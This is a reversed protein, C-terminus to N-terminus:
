VRDAPESDDLLRQELRALRDNLRPSSTSPLRGTRLGNDIRRELTDASTRVRRIAVTLPAVDIAVTARGDDDLTWAPVSDVFRAITKAYHSFRFPLVEAEGLRLAISGLVRVLQAGRQFGPDAVEEVFRRTDYNSHYAGYTYGGTANFEISLTPLGLHDQFPVFDAGSGLAKLEVEFGGIGRQRRDATQRAWESARWQDYVSSSGEGIDKTVDIVLDRLSPM